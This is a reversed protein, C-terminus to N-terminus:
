KIDAASLNQPLMSPIWARGSYARMRGSRQVVLGPENIFQARHSHSPYIASAQLYQQWYNGFLQQLDPNFPGHWTVAFVTGAPGVYERVVTGQPTTLEHVSYNDHGAVRVAAKMRAAEGPVTTVSAGLSALAPAAVTVLLMSHLLTRSLTM